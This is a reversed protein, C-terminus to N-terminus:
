RSWGSSSSLSWSHLGRDPNFQHDRMVDDVVTTGALDLVVLEYPTTM